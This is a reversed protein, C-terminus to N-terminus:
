TDCGPFVIAYYSTDISLPISQKMGRPPSRTKFLALVEQNEARRCEQSVASRISREWIVAPWASRLVM